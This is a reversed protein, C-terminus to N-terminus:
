AAAAGARRGSTQGAAAAARAAAMGLALLAWSYGLTFGPTLQFAILLATMAAILGALVTRVQGVPARRLARIATVYFAALLWLLALLGIIGTDHLVQLTLNPLWAPGASYDGPLRYGFSGPGLGLRM